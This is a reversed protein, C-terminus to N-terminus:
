FESVRGWSASAFRGLGYHSPDVIPDTATILDAILHGAGPGIGFGHGSFGAALLFGPLAKIQDIVPVGDPTSDIYSGWKAQVGIAGIEPSLSTARALTENLEKSSPKPDLTRTMEMPTKQDLHWKARTEHRFSLSQFSGPKISRWRRAFMPLFKGAFRVKQPTPDFQARGSISVTYGGDGRRTISAQKTHLAEPLSRAGPMISLASALMSAQPFQIGLQNCFSSAWAGGAMVVQRTRIEGIETVVGSVRGAETLIGRAACNQVVTGGRKEVGKAIIAAARSTDATGDNQAFIGGLWPGGTATAFGSAKEANLIQSKVGRGHAFDCWETWVQLEREDRSLYLLGCRRFGVSEGIEEAFRDWLALSKTALPLEREDRNQQRCWGWNRSSQEGGIRGKELVVVPVGRGALYYAACVGIIGGGIIVVEAEKPAARSTEIHHLPASM